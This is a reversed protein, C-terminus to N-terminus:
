PLFGFRQPRRRIRVICVYRDGFGGNGPQPIIEPATEIV